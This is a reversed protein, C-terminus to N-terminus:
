TAPFNNVRDLTENIENEESDVDDEDASPPQTM